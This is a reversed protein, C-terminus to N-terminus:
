KAELPLLTTRDLTVAFSDFLARCDTRAGETVPAVMMCMVSFARLHRGSDIMGDTMALTDIKPSAGEFTGTMITGDDTLSPKISSYGMAVPIAGHMAQLNTRFQGQAIQQTSTTVQILLFETDASNAWAFAQIPDGPDGKHFGEVAMQELNPQETWGAPLLVHFGAQDVPTGEDASVAALSGILFAACAFAAAMFRM